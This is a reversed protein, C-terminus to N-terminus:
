DKIKPDDGGGILNKLISAIDGVYTEDPPVPFTKIDEFESILIQKVSSNALFRNTMKSTVPEGARIIYNLNENIYEEQEATLCSFILDHATVINESNIRAHQRPDAVVIVNPRNFLYELHDLSADTEGLIVLINGSLPEV